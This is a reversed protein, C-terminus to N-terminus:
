DIVDASQRIPRHDPERRHTADLEDRHVIEAHRGVFRARQGRILIRRRDDLAPQLLAYDFPLANADIERADYEIGADTEALVRQLRQAQQAVDPMQMAETQPQEDPM